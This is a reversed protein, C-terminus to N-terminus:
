QDGADERWKIRLEAACASCVHLGIVPIEIERQCNPCELSFCEHTRAVRVNTATLTQYSTFLQKM